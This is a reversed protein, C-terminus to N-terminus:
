YTDIHVSSLFRADKFLPNFIEIEEQQLNFM